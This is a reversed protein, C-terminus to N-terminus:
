AEEGDQYDSEISLSRWKRIEDLRNGLETEAAKVSDSGLLLRFPPKDSLAVEVILEGGKQPNGKQNRSINGAKRYLPAISQYDPIVNNGEILNDGYFGTRFAGPEVIMVHMGFQSIEKFLSDSALELAAKAASYYGNGIAGRVAGISSINIIMGSKRRRMDPLVLKALDMPAFFDTDFLERGDADLSEEIAARYGHGANNVLVDISGFRQMATKVAQELNKRDNLNLHLPLVNGKYRAVYDDLKELNRSTLVAQDGRKLVAEAIGKGLGSSAGTIFWTMM